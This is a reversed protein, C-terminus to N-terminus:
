DPCVFKYEDQVVTKTGVIVRQCTSDSKVHVGIRISLDENSFQHEREGWDKGVYDRSKANPCVDNAYGLLNCVLDSNLTDQNYLALTIEVRGYHSSVGVHRDNEPVGDLLMCLRTLVPQVVTYRAKRLDSARRKVEAAERKLSELTAKIIGRSVLVSRDVKTTKAM